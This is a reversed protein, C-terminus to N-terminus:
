EGCPINKYKSRIKKEIKKREEAKLKYHIAYRLLGKHYNEWDKSRKHEKIANKVNNSHDVDLLYFKEHLQSIIVFVGPKNDIKKLTKHPGDFLFDTIIMKM